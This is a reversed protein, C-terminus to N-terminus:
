KVAKVKFGEEDFTSLVTEINDLYDSFHAECLQFPEFNDIYFDQPVDICFENIYKFHKKKSKSFTTNSFDLVTINKNFNIKNLNFDINIILDSSKPPKNLIPIYIGLEDHFSESLPLFTSKNNTILCISKCNKALYEINYKTIYNYQNVLIVANYKRTIEEQFYNMSLLYKKLLINKINNGTIINIQYEQLIQKFYENEFLFNDLVVTFIKKDYLITYIKKFLNSIKKKSLNSFKEKKINLNILYDKHNLNSLYITKFLSKFKHNCTIYVIQM